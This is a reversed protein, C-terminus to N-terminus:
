YDWENPKTLKSGGTRAGNYKALAHVPRHKRPAKTVPVLFYVKSTARVFVVPAIKRWVNFREKCLLGRNFIDNFKSETFAPCM